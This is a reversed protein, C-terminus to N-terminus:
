TSERKSLLRMEGGRGELDIGPGCRVQCMFCARDLGLASKDTVTGQGM